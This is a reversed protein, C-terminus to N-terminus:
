LVTNTARAVGISGTLDTAAVTVTDTGAANFSYTARLMRDYSPTAYADDRVWVPAEFTGSNYYHREATISYASTGIDINTIPDGNADVARYDVDVTQPATAYAPPAYVTPVDGAPTEASRTLRIADDAQLYPATNVEFQANIETAETAHWTPIANADAIIEIDQEPGPAPDWFPPENVDVAGGPAAMCAPSRRLEVDSTGGVRVVTLEPELLASRGSTTLTVELKFTGDPLVLEVAGTGNEKWISDGTHTQADISVAPDTGSTRPAEFRVRTGGAPFYIDTLTLTTGGDVLLTRETQVPATKGLGLDIRWDGLLHVGGEEEGAEELMSHWRAFDCLNADAGLKARQVRRTTLVAREAAFKHGAEGAVLHPHADIEGLEYGQVAEFPGAAVVGCQYGWEHFSAYADAHGRHVDDFVFTTVASEITDDGRGLPFYRRQRRVKFAGPLALSRIYSGSCPNFFIVIDVDAPRAQLLHSM